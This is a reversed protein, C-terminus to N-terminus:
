RLKARIRKWEPCVTSVLAWFDPSHDMYRLHCLEHAVVYDICERDFFVIASNISINGTSSCRGWSATMKKITVKNPYLGLQPALSSFSGSILERTRAAVAKKAQADIYGERDALARGSVALELRGDSFRPAFYREAEVAAVTFEEGGLSFSMGERYVEPAAARQRKIMSKMVWSSKEKLFREGTELPAYRPMRLVVEDDKVAIYINRRDGRDLIYELLAGNELM